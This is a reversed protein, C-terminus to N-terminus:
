ALMEASHFEMKGAERAVLLGDWHAAKKLAMLNAKTMAREYAMSDGWNTDMLFALGIGLMEDKSDATM